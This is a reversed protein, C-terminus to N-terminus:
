RTKRRYSGACFCTRCWVKGAAPSGGTIAPVGNMGCRPCDGCSRCTWTRARRRTSRGRSCRRTATLVPFSATSTFTAKVPWVTTFPAGALRVAASPLMEKETGGNSRTISFYSPFNQFSQDKQINQFPRAELCNQPKNGSPRKKEAMQRSSEEM